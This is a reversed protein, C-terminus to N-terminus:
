APLSLDGRYAQRDVGSATRVQFIQFMMQERQVKTSLKKNSRDQLLLKQMTNEIYSRSSSNLRNIKTLQRRSIEDVNLEFDCGVLIWLRPGKAIM